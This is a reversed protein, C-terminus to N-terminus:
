SNKRADKAEKREKAKIANTRAEKEAIRKRMKKLKKAGPKAFWTRAINRSITRTLSSM